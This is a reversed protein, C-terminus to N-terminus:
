HKHNEYWRSPDDAPNDATRVYVFVPCSGSALTLANIKRLTQSLQSSSSRGKVLVAICVQSDCLHAYKVRIGAICRIRWKMASFVAGLELVNIHAGSRPYAVVPKWGWREAQIGQRPWGKPNMLTSTALRVDSGRYIANRHLQRVAELQLQSQNLPYDLQLRRAAAQLDAEVLSGWCNSVTPMRSLFGLSYLPVALIRAVVPVLFSNGLLSIRMDEYDRDSIRRVKKAIAHATYERPFGM